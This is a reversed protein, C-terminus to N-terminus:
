KMLIKIFIKDEINCILAFINVSYTIFATKLLEIILAILFILFFGEVNAPIFPILDPYESNKLAFLVVISILSLIGSFYDIIGSFTSLLFILVFTILKVICFFFFNIIVLLVKLIKLWVKDIGNSIYNIFFQWKTVYNESYNEKYEETKATYTEDKEKSFQKSYKIDNLLKDYEKRKEDDLLVEKAENLSRIIKNSDESKNVDPHYKKVMERYATKIEQKTSDMSIGLLEYFDIM